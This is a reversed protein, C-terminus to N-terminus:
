NQEYTLTFIFNGTLNTQTVGLQNGTGYIVDATNTGTVTRIMPTRDINNYQANIINTSSYQDATFPLGGIILATSDTVNSLELRTNLTVLRGIKTYHASVVTVAQTGGVITPTWTGEEYDDLKNAAGTGGLYVGGSLYADRFKFNQEGIDTADNSLTGDKDTPVISNTGASLGRGGTRPDLIITSVVGARSKWSGVPTGNRRLILLDGDSSLRNLSMPEDSDRTIILSSGNFYRLGEQTQWTTNTTGVLLNGDATLTMDHTTGDPTWRCSGDNSIRMRETDATGFTLADATGTYLGIVNVTPSSIKLETAATDSYFKAINNDGKVELRHTSPSAGIGVRGQNDILMHNTLTATAGATGSPATLFGIQGADLSIATAGATTKYKFSNDNSRYFNNALFTSGGFQDYLASHAGLDLVKDPYATRWASPVTGIGM